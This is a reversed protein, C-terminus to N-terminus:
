SYLPKSTSLHISAVPDSSLASLINDHLTELDFLVSAWLVAATLYTARLSATLQEQMFVPRFNHPNIRAYDKDGEKPYVDWRRTLSDLKAGLKRPRFHVVMNFQSLFESWHAQRRTLLKTTVFYKYELNKHNTVVDVPAASDELYHHWSKFAEHIALLEKDHIDYNLEPASLTRSYYAVLWIEDDSCHLSLIGAIAYDSANTEVIIPTDPSWHTLIPASTFADKLKRFASHCSGSFSWATGKCTLRTM